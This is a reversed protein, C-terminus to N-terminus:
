DQEFAERFSRRPTGTERGSGGRREGDRGRSERGAADRKGDDAGDDNSSGSGGSQSQQQSESRVGGPEGSTGPGGVHLRDVKLGRSELSTRLMEISQELLVRAADTGAKLDARVSGDVVTMRVALEGLSPPDLRMTITGGRQSALVGLARTAIKGNRAGPDLTAGDRTTVDALVGQRADAQLTTVTQPGVPRGGALSRAAQELAIAQQVQEARAVAPDAQSTTRMDTTTTFRDLLSALSSTREVGRAASAESRDKSVGDRPAESVPTMDQIEFRGSRSATSRIVSGAEISARTDTGQAKTVADSDVSQSATGTTAVAEIGAGPVPNSSTSRMPAGGDNRTSEADPGSRTTSAAGNGDAKRVPVAENPMTTSRESTVNPRLTGERPTGEGPTSTTRPEVHVEQGPSDTTMVGGGANVAVEARPTLVVEAGMPPGSDDATEDSSEPTEGSGDVQDQTEQARDAFGASRPEEDSTSESIPATAPTEAEVAEERASTVRNIRDELHDSFRGAPSQSGDKVPGITGPGGQEVLRGAPAPVSPDTTSTLNPVLHM